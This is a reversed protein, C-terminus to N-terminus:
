PEAVVMHIHLAVDNTMSMDSLTLGLVVARADPALVPACRSWPCTPFPTGARPKIVIAVKIVVIALWDAEASALAAEAVSKPGDNQRSESGDSM